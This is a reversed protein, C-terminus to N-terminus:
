LRKIIKYLNDKNSGEIIDGHGPIIVDAMSFIKELSELSKKRDYGGTFKGGRIATEFIADGVCMYKLGNEEYLYSVSDATHGPTPIVRIGTEDEFLALDDFVMYSPEGHTVYGNETFIKANPFSGINSCHDLHHHTILVWDIMGADLGEKKLLGEVATRGAIHGPDVLFNGGDTRILTTSSYIPRYNSYGQGPTLVHVGTRLVKIM